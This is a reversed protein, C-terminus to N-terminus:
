KLGYLELLLNYDLLTGNKMKNIKAAALESSRQKWLEELIKKGDGYHIQNHCESCLSVVNAEVDLSWEFEEHYQLPIIHHPEMYKINTNRRFFSKHKCNYECQNKARKLANVSVSKKRPYIKKGKKTEKVEEKAVASPIYTSINGVLESSDIEKKIKEDDEIYSEDSYKKYLLSSNSIIKWDDIKRLEVSKKLFDLEYSVRGVLKIKNNDFFLEVEGSQVLIKYIGSKKKFKGNVEYVGPSLLTAQGEAVRKGLLAELKDQNVIGKESACGYISVVCAKKLYDILYLPEDTREIKELIIQDGIELAHATRYRRIPAIRHPTNSSAYDTIHLDYEKKTTVDIFSHKVGIGGFFEEFEDIKDKPIPPEAGHAGAKVVDTQSLTRIIAKNM